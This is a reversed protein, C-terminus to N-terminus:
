SHIRSFLTTDSQAAEKLALTIHIEYDLELWDCAEIEVLRPLSLPQM